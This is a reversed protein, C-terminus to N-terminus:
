GQAADDAGHLRPLLLDHDKGRCFSRLVSILWGNKKEGRKQKEGV